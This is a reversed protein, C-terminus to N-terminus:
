HAEIPRSPLRAGELRPDKPTYSLIGACSPTAEWSSPPIRALAEVAPFEILLLIM